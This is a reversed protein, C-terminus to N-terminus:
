TVCSDLLTELSSSFLSTAWMGRGSRGRYITKEKWGKREKLVTGVSSALSADDFVGAGSDYMFLLLHTLLNRSM